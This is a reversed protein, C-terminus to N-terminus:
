VPLSRLRWIHNFLLFVYEFDGFSFTFINAMILSAVIAFKWAWREVYDSMNNVTDTTNVSILSFCVWWSKLDVAKKLWSGQLEEESM